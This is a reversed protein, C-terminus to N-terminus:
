DVVTGAAAPHAGGAPRDRTHDRALCRWLCHPVSLQGSERLLAAPRAEPCPTAIRGRVFAVPRAHDTSRCGESARGPSGRRRWDATAARSRPFWPISSSQEAHAKSGAKANVFPQLAYLLRAMIWAAMDGYAEGDAPAAHDILEPKDDLVYHVAIAALADLPPSKSELISESIREIGDMREGHQEYWREYGPSDPHLEPNERRFEALGEPASRFTALEPSPLAVMEVSPQDPPADFRLVGDILNGVVESEWDPCEDPLTWRVGEDAKELWHKAIVARLKLNHATIPRAAFIRKSLETLACDAGDATRNAAALAPDAGRNRGLREAAAYLRQAEDYLRDVERLREQLTALTPDDQRAHIPISSAVGGMGLLGIVGRVLYAVSKPEFDEGEDEGGPELICEPYDPSKVSGPSNWHVVAPLLLRLDAFSRVGVAFLTATKEVFARSRAKAEDGDLEETDRIRAQDWAFFAATLEPPSPALPSM